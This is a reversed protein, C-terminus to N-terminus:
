SHAGQSPQNTQAQVFQEWTQRGDARGPATNEGRRLAASLRGPVPIGVVSRPRHHRARWVEIVRRLELVEPGAFDDARGVPVGAVVDVVHEAVEAAAVPQVRWDLPLPVLPLRGAARLGRELLEHFQTARLITYPVAGGKIAEECALKQGYYAYPMRDIGVVSVYLVHGVEPAASLLNETQRLDTRLVRAGSERAGHVLEDVLRSKGVGAEGGVVMTVREGELVRALADALAASESRRGVLIPSVLSAAV